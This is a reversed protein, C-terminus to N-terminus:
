DVVCIKVTGNFTRCTATGGGAIPCDADTVCSHTCHGAASEATRCIQSESPCGVGNACGATIPLYTCQGFAQPNGAECRM